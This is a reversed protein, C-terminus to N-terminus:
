YGPSPLQPHPGTNHILTLPRAHTFTTNGPPCASASAHYYIRYREGISLWFRSVRSQLNPMLCIFAVLSYMAGGVCGAITDDNDHRRFEEITLLPIAYVLNAIHGCLM